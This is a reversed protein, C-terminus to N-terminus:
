TFYEDEPYKLQPKGYPNFNNYYGIIWFDVDKPITPISGQETRKLIIIDDKITKRRIEGNTM